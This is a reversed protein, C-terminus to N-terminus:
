NLEAKMKFYEAQKKDPNLLITGDTQTLGSSYLQGLLECGELSGNKASQFAYNLGKELNIETFQSGELYSRSLLYQAFGSSIACNNLFEFANKYRKENVMERVVNLIEIDYEENVNDLQNLLESQLENHFSPKKSVDEQYIQDEKYNNNNRFLVKTFLDKLSFKSLRNNKRSYSKNPIKQKNLNREVIKAKYLGSVTSSRIYYERAKTYDISIFSLIGTAFIDGLCEQSRGPLKSLLNLGHKEMNVGPTLMTIALKFGIDQFQSDSSNSLQNSLLLIKEEYVSKLQFITNYTNALDDMSKKSSLINSLEDIVKIVPMGGNLTCTTLLSSLMSARDDIDASSKVTCNSSCNQIHISPINPYVFSTESPM